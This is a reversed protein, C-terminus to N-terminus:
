TDTRGHPTRSTPTPTRTPPPTQSAPPTQPPTPTRTRLPPSGAGPVPTVVGPTPTDIVAARAAGAPVAGVIRRLAEVLEFPTQYREKPLKAMLKRIVAVVEAPTEPRLEEIPTPEEQQHKLLKEIMTGEPFPVRGTLLFYFTGGLSYLDARIDASSADRAQEPAVYDPTGMMAGERTLSAKSELLTEMRALGMDLIKVLGHSFGGRRQADGRRTTEPRAILLNSPKVDRHVLGGEFAHQLGLAAQRIYECAVLVPLPGGEHVMRELD